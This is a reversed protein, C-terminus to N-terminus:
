LASRWAPQADGEAGRVVIGGLVAQQAGYALWGLSEAPDASARAPSLATCGTRSRTKARAQDRAPTWACADPRRSMERSEATPRIPAVGAGAPPALNLAQHAAGDSTPSQSRSCQPGSCQAQPQSKSSTLESQVSCLSVRLQDARIARQRPDDIAFLFRLLLFDELTVSSRLFGSASADAMPLWTSCRLSRAYLLLLRLPALEGRHPEPSADVQGALALGDERVAQGARSVGAQQLRHRARSGAGGARFCRDPHQDGLGLPSEFERGNLVPRARDGSRFGISFAQASSLLRTRCLRVFQQFDKFKYSKSIADRGDVLKWNCQLLPDLLEQRQEPSLTSPGKKSKTPSSVDMSLLRHGICQWLRCPLVLGCSAYLHQM